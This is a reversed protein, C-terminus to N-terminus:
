GSKASCKLIREKWYSTTLKQMSSSSFRSALSEWSSELRKQTVEEWSDVLLCPLDKLIDTAPPNRKVIPISGLAIAEWTRHCDPGRGEPSLVYHHKVIDEYYEDMHVSDSDGGGKVTAWPTHLFKNYLVPREGGNFWPTQKTFCVYMLGYKGFSSKLAKQLAAWRDTRYVFAIPTAELRSDKVGVNNSFWRIVNSPLDRVMSPTVVADCGGTVLVCPGKKSLEQFNSSATHTILFFIPGNQGELSMANYKAGALSAYAQCDLREAGLLERM